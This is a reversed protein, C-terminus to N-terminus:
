TVKTRVTQLLVQMAYTDLECYAELDRWLSEAADASLGDKIFGLYLQSAADGNSINMDEYSLDTFAPLVKKISASSQQKPHYLWRKKFPSCLDIMRANIALLASAHHPFHDALHKNVGEEFTQNYVIITGAQGCVGILREVFEARPDSRAKHLFPRHRLQAGPADEIHLSFQFPIQQFPRSGDFLPVASRITEYDLYHVPYEINSLFGRLNDPEVYVDDNLYSWVDAKKAGSPVANAPLSKVEYSGLSEVMEEAKKGTLVDFISYEPVARWCHQVYDCKFPKGCRTGIKIKPESAPSMSILSRAVGDIEPQRHLVKDTVDQLSFLAEPDIEGNRIYRNNIHMIFCRRVVYGAASFVRYQFSIDDLQYDEIDTSGKVEIIEWVDGVKRFIDARAYSGDVPHIATAEFIIKQGGQVFAETEATGAAPDSYASHVEVDGTFRKKAWEGIERGAQFLAERAPDVDAPIDKRNKFYWLSLPCQKGRMFQSKSISLSKYDM